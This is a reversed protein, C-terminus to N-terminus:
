LFVAAGMVFCVAAVVVAAGLGATRPAESAVGAKQGWVASPASAVVDINNAESDKSPTYDLPPFNCTSMIVHMNNQVYGAQMICSACLGAVQAVDFSRNLCVCKEEADMAASMAPRGMQEMQSGGSTTDQLLRSSSSSAPPPM